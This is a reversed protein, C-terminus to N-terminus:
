TSYLPWSYMQVNMLLYTTFRTEYNHRTKPTLHNSLPRM